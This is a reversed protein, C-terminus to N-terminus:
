LQLNNYVAAAHTRIEITTEDKADSSMTGIKTEQIHQPIFGKYQM